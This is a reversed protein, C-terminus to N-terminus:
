FAPFLHSYLPNDLSFKNDSETNRDSGELSMYDDIVRAIEHDAEAILSEEMFETYHHLMAKRRYLQTFRGRERSLVSAFGTSNYLGLVGVSQHLPPANCLGIKCADPNWGPFSMDRQASSVCTLFDDLSLATARGLFASAMTVVGPRTPPHAASVQGAGSLIDRFARQIATRSSDRERGGGGSGTGRGGSQSLSLPRYPNIAAALFPMRPFPILNTCIENMDVNLEGNFRSSATLQSLVRGAVCNMDDFGKDTKHATKHSLISSSYKGFKREQNKLQTAELQIFSQLATNDLPIACHCHEVIERTALVSNYPSTIVDDGESPFVCTSFRSVEPFLDSLVGLMYTGVGSGTGGGLSHTVIFTQLSDCQEALRLLGDEFKSRYQPGYMHHGHGFNNGSGSVDMVYQTEDFLSGLPGKMTEHLPGCEMDILLARAKMTTSGNRNPVFRFFASLSEDNDPTKEHEQLLQNWFNNGIQNGCQGVQITVTERM